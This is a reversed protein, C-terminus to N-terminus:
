GPLLPKDTVYNLWSFMIYVVNLFFHFLLMKFGTNLGGRELLGEKKTSSLKLLLSGDRKVGM